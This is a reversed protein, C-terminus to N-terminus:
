PTLRWLRTNQPSLAAIKVDSNADYSGPPEKLVSGHASKTTQRFRAKIGLQRSVREVFGEEGVAISESWQPDRSSYEQAEDKIWRHQNKALEEGSGLDLLCAVQERDIIQYRKPPHQIASFGCCEWEDLQDVAGTRVMNLDIYAMCRRLHRGSEVCTAHYRDEWFAGKRRKRFNYEQAVRGAVLQMSRPITEEDGEDLVLLHIHNSTVMYNLVVLGYRKKAEYLWQVWRRRDRAFKLMFERQHCRHTLHWVCGGVSYRNARPM